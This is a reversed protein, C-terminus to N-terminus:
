ESTERDVILRSARGARAYFVAVILMIAGVVLFTAVRWAAGVEVLDYLATKAGAIALVALGIRRATANRVMAGSILLGIAVVAWWLSVIARQATPDSFAREAARMVEATTVGFSWLAPAAIMVIFLPTAEQIASRRWERLATAFGLGAAGLALIMPTNLFLLQQDSFWNFESQAGIWAGISALAGVFAFRHLPVARTASGCLWLAFSLALWIVALGMPTASEHLPAAFIMALGFTLCLNRQSDDNDNRAFGSLAAMALWVAGGLIVLLSPQSLVVGNFSFLEPAEWWHLTAMRATGLMAVIMAYIMLSSARIWRAAFAAALALAFWSAAQMWDALALAITIAALVGATAAFTAGLRELETRPEDRLVRLSGVLVLALHASAAFGAAPAMWDLHALPSSHLAYVALAITWATTSLSTMVGRFHAPSLGSALTAADDADTFGRKARIILEFHTVCWFAAFFTAGILPHDPGRWMAWGIGFILTGWWGIARAPAFVSGRTAALAAGTITLAMWYAPLFGLPPPDGTSLLLPAGYAGVMAICAIAVSRSRDAVLFGIITTLALLVFATPRSVLDLTQHSAYATAYLVGVGAANLGTGALTGFRRRVTDGAILLAAGFLGGSLAKLPDPLRGLWGQDWALKFFFAAGAIVILAGAVAFIKVGVLRELDGLPTTSPAVSHNAAQSSKVVPAAAHETLRALAATKADDRAPEAVPSSMPPQAKPRLTALPPVTPEPKLVSPVIGHIRELLAVRASLDKLAAEFPQSENM